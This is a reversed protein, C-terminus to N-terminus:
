QEPIPWRSPDMAALRRRYASLERQQRAMAASGYDPVGDVLVPPQFRRWAEFLQLLDHYTTSVLERQAADTLLATGRLCSRDRRVGGHSPDARTAGPKAPISASRGGVTSEPRAPRVPDARDAGRAPGAPRWLLLPRRQRAGLAPQEGPRPRLPGSRAR